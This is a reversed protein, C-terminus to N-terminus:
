AQITIDGRVLYTCAVTQSKSKVVVNNAFDGRRFCLVGDAKVTSDNLERLDPQFTQFSSIVHSIITTSSLQIIKQPKNEKM